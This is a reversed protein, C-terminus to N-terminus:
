TDRASDICADSELSSLFVVQFKPTPPESSLMLGTLWITCSAPRWVTLTSAPTVCTRVGTSTPWNVRVWVWPM